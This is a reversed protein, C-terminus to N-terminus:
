HATLASMGGIPQPVVDVRGQVTSHTWDAARYSVNGRREVLLTNSPSCSSLCALFAVGFLIRIMPRVLFLYAVAPHRPLCVSSTECHPRQSMSQNSTVRAMM